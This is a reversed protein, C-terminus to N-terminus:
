LSGDHHRVVYFKKNEQKQDFHQTRLAPTSRGREHVESACYVGAGNCWAFMFGTSDSLMHLHLSHMTAHKIRAICAQSSQTLFSRLFLAYASSYM